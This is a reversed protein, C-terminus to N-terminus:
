SDSILVRTTPIALTAVSRTFLTRLAAFSWVDATGSLTVGVDGVVTFWQNTLVLAGSPAVHRACRRGGPHGAVTLRELDVLAYDRLMLALMQDTRTQWDRFSLGDNGMVTLVLNARFDGDARAPEVAVLCGDSWTVSSWSQPHSFTVGRCGSTSMLTHVTLGLVGM